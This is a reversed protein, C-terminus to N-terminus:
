SYTVGHLLKAVAAYIASIKYWTTYGVIGDQALNFVQQFKKVANETSQNFQGDAPTILPIAPYSGRIINLENQLKQIEEGCDGRKLVFGPYSTPLGEVINANKISVNNTYYYRLIELASKGQDGLYKSGWQSLWNANNVNKGDNYQSFFPQKENKWQIYSTFIQDVVDSITKFITRNPVYKQDFNTTSTITFNYGRSPYWETYIRNLTFSLIAYLNAKITELPWTSYIESSGVNKIYDKFPVTYNAVSNNTPLGNHVIIYEPIIVEPLVKTLNEKLPEEPIKPPYDGWLVHEPLTIVNTNKLVGQPELYVDQLSTEDPLIEVNIIDTADFGAKSVFVEYTAYPRVEHQESMSYIKDPAELSIRETKGSSDTVFTKRVGNGSVLVEAGEVPQAITDIYVNVILYGTAM